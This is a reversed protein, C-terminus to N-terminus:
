RKQSKKKFYYEGDNSYYAFNDFFIFLLFIFSLSGRKHLLHLTIM